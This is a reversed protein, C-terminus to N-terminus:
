VASCRDCMFLAMTKTKMIKLVDQNLAGSEACNFHTSKFCISCKISKSKDVIPQDCHVCKEIKETKKTISASGSISSLVFNPNGKQGLGKQATSASEIDDQTTTQANKQTQVTDSPPSLGTAFIGPKILSDAQHVKNTESMVSIVSNHGSSLHGSFGDPPQGSPNIDEM